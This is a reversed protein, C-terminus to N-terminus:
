SVFKAPIDIVFINRCYHIDREFIDTNPSKRLSISFGNIELLRRVLFLGLGKGKEKKQAESGRIHELFITDEESDTNFVSIMDFDIKIAGNKQQDIHVTVESKEKCYKICNEFLLAFASRISFFNCYFENHNSEILVNINKDKFENEYIYYSQVLCSHIKQMSRDSSDLLESNELYDLCNYEFAAQELAKECRLLERAYNVTNQSILENIYKVKDEQYILENYNLQNRLGITINHIINKANHLIIHESDQYSANNIEKISYVNLIAQLVVKTAHKADKLNKYEDYFFYYKGSDRERIIVAYDKYFSCNEVKKNKIADLLLSVKSRDEAYVYLLQNDNNM